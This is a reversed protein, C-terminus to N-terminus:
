PWMLLYTLLKYNKVIIKKQTKTKLNKNEMKLKQNKNIKLKLILIKWSEYKIKWKVQKM